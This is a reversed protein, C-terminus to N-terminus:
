KVKEPKIMISLKQAMSQSMASFKPDAFMLVNLSDFKNYVM